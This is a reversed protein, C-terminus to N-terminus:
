VRKKNRFTSTQSHCNPCLLRLNDLRNDIRNGDIHDLELVIKKKNWIDGLGCEQCVYEKNSFLLYARKLINNTISKGEQFIEKKNYKATIRPDIAATKGTAWKRDEDTFPVDKRGEKYARSLGESNKKRISLCKNHKESCCWNGNKLQFKAEEGCGYQCKM